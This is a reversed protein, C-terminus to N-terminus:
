CHKTSKIGVVIAGALLALFAFVGGAELVDNNSKPCDNYKSKLEEAKEDSIIKSLKCNNEPCLGRMASRGNKYVDICISDPIAKVKKKCCFCHFQDDGMTM